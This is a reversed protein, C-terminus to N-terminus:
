INEWILYKIIIKKEMKRKKKNSIKKKKVDKLRNNLNSINNKKNDNQEVKMISGIIENNFIIKESTNNLFKKLDKLIFEIHIKRKSKNHYILYYEQKFINEDLFGIISIFINRNNLFNPLNIIIKENNIICESLLNNFQNLNDLILELYKKSIIEFNNYIMLNIKENDIYNTYQITIIEPEIDTNNFNFIKKNRKLLNNLIDNSLYKLLTIIKRKDNYYLYDQNNNKDLDEKIENYLFYKKMKNLFFPNLLYYSKNNESTINQNIEKYNIYLYLPTKICDQNLYDIYNFYNKYNIINSDYRYAYGIIENFSFIPSIYDNIKKDNFIIKHNIYNEYGWEILRKIEENLYDSKEYDFIIKINYSNNTIDLNGLFITHQYDTDLKIIDEKNLCLYSINYKELNIKFIKKILTFLEENLIIFEDFIKIKKSHILYLEKENVNYNSSLKVELIKKDIGKLNNKNIIEDILKFDKYLESIDM